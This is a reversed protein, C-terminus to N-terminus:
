PSCEACGRAQRPTDLDVQCRPLTGCEEVPELGRAIDLGFLHGPREVVTDAHHEDDLLLLLLPDKVQEALCALAGDDHARRRGCGCWCFMVFAQDASREEEAGEGDTTHTIFNFHGLLYWLSMRTQEVSTLDAGLGM